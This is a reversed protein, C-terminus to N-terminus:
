IRGIFWGTDSVAKAAGLARLRSAIRVVAGSVLLSTHLAYTRIAPTESGWERAHKNLRRLIRIHLDLQEAEFAGLFDPRPISRKTQHTM